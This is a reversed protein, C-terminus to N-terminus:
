RSRCQHVYFAREESSLPEGLSQRELLRICPPSSAPGLTVGGKPKPQKASAAETARRPSPPAQNSSPITPQAAVEDAVSRAPFSSRHMRSPDGPEHIGGVVSHKVHIRTPTVPSPGRAEPWVIEETPRTTRWRWAVVGSMMVATAVGVLILVLPIRRLANGGPGRRVAPRSLIVEVESSAGIGLGAMTAQLSPPSLSVRVAPNPPPSSPARPADTVRLASVLDTVSQFRRSPDKELCRLIAAELHPPLEPRLGRPAAPADHTIAHAIAPLPDRDFPVHGTLLEYLVVGLSWVDSRADVTKPALFQEPSMYYVSGVIGNTQTLGDGTPQPVRSIGFDLVKITTGGHLRTALFLNAPKLDRHVIGLAHAEGIAESAQVIWDIADQTSVPGCRDLRHKLDEGELLEMVIYPTTGRWTGFDLVRAVHESQLRAAAQAERLFRPLAHEQLLAEPRLFKLAVTRQLAAHYASFVIGMGGQGLTRVVVYKDDIQQGERIPLRDRNM